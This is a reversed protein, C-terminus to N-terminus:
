KDSENKVGGKPWGVYMLISGCVIFMAPPYVMYLGVGLMVYGALLIIEAIITTKEEKKM